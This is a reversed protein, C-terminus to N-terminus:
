TRGIQRLERPFGPKGGRQKLLPHDWQRNSTEVRDVIEAWVSQKIAEPAGRLKRLEGTVGKPIEDNMVPAARQALGQEGKEFATSRVDFGGALEINVSVREGVPELLDSIVGTAVGSVGTRAQGEM